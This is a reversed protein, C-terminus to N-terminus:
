LAYRVLHITLFSRLFDFCDKTFRFDLSESKGDISVTFLLRKPDITVSAGCETIWFSRSDSYLQLESSISACYGAVQDKVDYLQLLLLKEAIFAKLDGLNSGTAFVRQSSGARVFAKRKLSKPFTGLELFPQWAQENVVVDSERVIQPISQLLRGSIANSAKLLGPNAAATKANTSATAAAAADAVVLAEAAASELEQLHVFSRHKGEVLYMAEQLIAAHEPLSIIDTVDAKKVLSIVLSLTRTVGLEIECDSENRVELGGLIPESESPITSAATTEEATPIARLVWNTGASPLHKRFTGFIQRCLIDGVKARFSIIM